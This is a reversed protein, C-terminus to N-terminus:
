RMEHCSSAFAHLSGMTNLSEERVGAAGPLECFGTGELLLAVAATALFFDAAGTTKERGNEIDWASDLLEPGRARFRPPMPPTEATVFVLPNAGYALTRTSHSPPR